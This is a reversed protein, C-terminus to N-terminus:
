VVLLTGLAPGRDPSQPPQGAVLVAIPVVVEAPSAGGHYGDRKGSYRVKESWPMVVTTSGDAM